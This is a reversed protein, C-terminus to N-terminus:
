SVPAISSTSIFSWQYLGVLFGCVGLGWGLLRGAPGGARHNAIMGGAVLCLFGVHVARVIQSPLGGGFRALILYTGLLCLFAFLAEHM